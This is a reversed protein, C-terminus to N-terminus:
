AAEGIDKLSYSDEGWGCEPCYPSDLPGLTKAQCQPCREFWIFPEPMFENIRRLWKRSLEVKEKVGIPKQKKKM